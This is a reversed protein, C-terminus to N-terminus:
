CLFINPTPMRLPAWAQSIRSWTKVCILGTHTSSKLVLGFFEVNKHNLSSIVTKYKKTSDGVDLFFHRRYFFFFFFYLAGFM